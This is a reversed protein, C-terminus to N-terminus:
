EPRSWLFLRQGDSTLWWSEKTQRGFFVRRDVVVNGAPDLARIRTVRARGEDVIEDCHGRCRVQLLANSLEVEYAAVTDRPSPSAVGPSFPKDGRVGGAMAVVSLGVVLLLLPGLVLGGLFQLLGVLSRLLVRM